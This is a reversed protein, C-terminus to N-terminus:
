GGVGFMARRLKDFEELDGNEGIKMNEYPVVIRRYFELKAAELAGIVSNLSAYSIPAQQLYSAIARQIAYNLDGPTFIEGNKVDSKHAESLYPM